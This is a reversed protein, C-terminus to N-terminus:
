NLTRLPLEHLQEGPYKSGFEPEAIQWFHLLLHAVHVVLVVFQTVQAPVSDVRPALGPHM